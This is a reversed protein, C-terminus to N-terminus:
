LADRKESRTLLWYKAGPVAGILHLLLSVPAPIRRTGDEWRRVTRGEVCIMRAFGEVSLGLSNRISKLEHHTM